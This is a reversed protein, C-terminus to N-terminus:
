DYEHAEGALMAMKHLIKRRNSIIGAWELYKAYHAYFGMVDNADALKILERGWQRGQEQRESQNYM